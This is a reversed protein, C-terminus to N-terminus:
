SVHVMETSKKPGGAVESCSSSGAAKVFDLAEVPSSTLTSCIKQQPLTLFSVALYRSFIHKCLVFKYVFIDIYIYKYTHLVRCVYDVIYIDIFEFDHMM